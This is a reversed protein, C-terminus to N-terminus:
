VAAKIKLKPQFNYRSKLENQFAGVLYHNKKKIKLM